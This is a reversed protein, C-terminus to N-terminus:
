ASCATIVDGKPTRLREEDPQRRADSRAPAHLLLNDILRTQGIRAAILMLGEDQLSHLEQFDVRDVLAVYEPSIEQDALVRGAAELLLQSSREGAAALREATLLAAHLALAQRRQSPTLRANRSSMALGDPERVTPMTEIEVDIHLDAVMRRIVAAQQADKQGFFAVDPAVVNLLKCVVTTVGILHKAGRVAGEFRDTLGHVQVTTAFGPGYIEAASPAFLVDAGSGEALAADRAEDRPYAVLDSQEDFQKSNVFLSVVVLDCRRRAAKILSLHGDHLAGMTPVLAVTLGDRRAARVRKRVDVATRLVHLNSSQADTESDATREAARLATM